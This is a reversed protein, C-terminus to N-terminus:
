APQLDMGGGLARDHRRELMAAHGVAIQLRQRLAALEADIGALAEIIPAAAIGLRHPALGHRPEVRQERKQRGAEARGGLAGRGLRARDYGRVRLVSTVLLLLALPM